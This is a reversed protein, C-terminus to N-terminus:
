NKKQLVKEPETQKLNSPTVGTTPASTSIGSQHVKTNAEVAQIAASEEKHTASWTDMIKNFETSQVQFFSDVMVFVPQIGELNNTLTEFEQRAVETKINGDEYGEKIEALTTIMGDYEDLTGQYKPALLLLNSHVPQMGSAPDNLLGTPVNALKSSFMAIAKNRADYERLKNIHTEYSTTMSGVLKEDVKKCASTVLILAAVISFYVNKM